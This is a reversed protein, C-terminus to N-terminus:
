SNHIIKESSPLTPGNEPMEVGSRDQLKGDIFTADARVLPV